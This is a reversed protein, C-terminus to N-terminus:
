ACLNKPVVQGRSCDRPGRSRLASDGTRRFRINHRGGNWKRSYNSARVKQRDLHVLVAEGAAVNTEIKFEAGRIHANRRERGGPRRPTVQVGACIEAGCPAGQGEIVGAPAIAEGLKTETVIVFGSRDCVIELDGGVKAADELDRM